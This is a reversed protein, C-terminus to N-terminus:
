TQIIPPNDIVNQIERAVRSIRCSRHKNESPLIAYPPLEMTVLGDSFDCGERGRETFGIEEFGKGTGPIMEELGDVDDVDVDDVDVDAEDDGIVGLGDKGGNHFREIKVSKL